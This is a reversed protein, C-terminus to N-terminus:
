KLNFDKKIEKVANDVQNKISKFIEKVEKRKGEAKAWAEIQLIETHALSMSLLDFTPKIKHAFAYANKYDKIEIADKIKELDEPIETVFLNIIEKVFEDDNESIQHVKALNYHIAM